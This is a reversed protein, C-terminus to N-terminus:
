RSRRTMHHRFMENRTGHCKQATADSVLSPVPTKRNCRGFGVDLAASWGVVATRQRRSTTQVRSSRVEFLLLTLAQM